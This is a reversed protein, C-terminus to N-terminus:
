MALTQARRPPLDNASLTEPLAKGPYLTRQNAGRRPSISILRGAQRQRAIPRAPVGQKNQKNQKNQIQLHWIKTSRM